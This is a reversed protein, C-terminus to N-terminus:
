AIGSVALIIGAFRRHFWFRVGDVFSNAGIRGRSRGKEVSVLCSWPVVSQVRPLSSPLWAAIEGSINVALPLGRHGAVNWGQEGIEPEDFSRPLAAVGDPGRRRRNSDCPWV